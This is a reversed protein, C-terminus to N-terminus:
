GIMTRILAGKEVGARYANSLVGFELMADAVRQISQAVVPGTPFGPLAMVATVQAPLDDSKAIAAQVILPKTEAITQGEQVASVFAAATKPYKEPQPFASNVAEGAHSACGAALFVSLVVVAAIWPPATSPSVNTQHWLHSWPIASTLTVPPFYPM